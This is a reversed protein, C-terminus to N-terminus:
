ADAFSIDFLKTLESWVVRLYQASRNHAVTDTRVETTNGAAFNARTSRGPPAKEAM